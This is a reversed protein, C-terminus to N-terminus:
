SMSKKILEHKHHGPQPTDIIYSSLGAISYDTSIGDCTTVRAVM